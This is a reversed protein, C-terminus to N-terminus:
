LMTDSPSTTREVQSACADYKTFYVELSTILTSGYDLWRQSWAFYLIEGYKTKFM